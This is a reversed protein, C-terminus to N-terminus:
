GNQVALGFVRETYINFANPATSFNIIQRFDKVQNMPIYDGNSNLLDFALHYFGSQKERKSMALIHQMLEGSVQDNLTTNGIRATVKDIAGSGEEIHLVKYATGLQKPLQTEEYDGTSSVNRPYKNVRIHQGIRRQEGTQAAFVQIKAINAVTANMKVEISIDDVGGEAASGETGIAYLSRSEALDLSADIWNWGLIGAVEAGGQADHLYGQRAYMFNPTLESLFESGNIRVTVHDIEAKINAVSVPNDSSNLCELYFAYQTGVPNIKGTAVGGATVNQLDPQKFIPVGM